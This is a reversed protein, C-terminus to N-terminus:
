SVRGGLRDACNKAVYKLRAFANRMEAVKRGAGGRGAAPNVFVAAPVIREM